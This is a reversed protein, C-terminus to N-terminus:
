AGIGGGFIANTNIERYLNKKINKNKISKWAQKPKSIVIFLIVCIVSSLGLINKKNNWIKNM